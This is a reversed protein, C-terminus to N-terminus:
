AGIRMVLIERAKGFSIQFKHVITFLSLQIKKFHIFHKEQFKKSIEDIELIKNAIM